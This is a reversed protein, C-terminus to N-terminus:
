SSRGCIIRLLRQWLKPVNEPMKGYALEPEEVLLDVLGTDDFSYLVRSDEAGIYSDILYRM